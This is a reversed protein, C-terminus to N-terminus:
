HVSHKGGQPRSEGPGDDVDESRPEIDWHQLQDAPTRYIDVCARSNGYWSHVIDEVRYRLQDGYTKPIGLADYEEIRTELNLEGIVLVTVALMEPDTEHVIVRGCPDCSAPLFIEYAEHDKGRSIRQLRFLTEYQHDLRHLQEGHEDCYEGPSADDPNCVVCSTVEKKRAM